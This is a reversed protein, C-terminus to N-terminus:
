ISHKLNGGIWRNASASTPVNLRRGIDESVDRNVCSECCATDTIREAINNNGTVEGKLRSLGKIEESAPCCRKDVVIADNECFLEAAAAVSREAECSEFSGELFSVVSSLVIL